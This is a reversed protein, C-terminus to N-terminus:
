PRRLLRQAARLLTGRPAAVHEVFVFRGDPKLVRRVEALAAAVDGVSCLVLTSVVADAHADPLPLREAVGAVVEAPVGVAHAKRRLRGHFHVNPEVGIWRDARRLYPLNVGAGPGVEVVTGELAGLLDAKLAGYIRRDAADGQALLWAFAWARPGRRVEGAADTTHSAATGSERGM